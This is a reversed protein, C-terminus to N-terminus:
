LSCSNTYLWLYDNRLSCPVRWFLMNSAGIFRPLYLPILKVNRSDFMPVFVLGVLTLTMGLGMEDALIVHKNQQWAFLLFNLGELQYPHLQGIGLSHGCLTLMLYRHRRQWQVMCKQMANLGSGKIIFSSHRFISSVIYCPGLCCTGGVLFKPTKKHPKFDKRRRKVDKSDLVPGKRKKLGPRAIIAKFKEVEAQFPAVDEEVEWTSEDYGLEKWKVLYETIDGNHRRLCSWFHTLVSIGIRLTCAWFM